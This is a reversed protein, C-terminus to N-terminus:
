LRELKELYTIIRKLLTEIIGAALESNSDKHFDLLDASQSVLRLSQYIIANVLYYDMENVAIEIQYLESSVKLYADIFTKDISDAAFAYLDLIQPGIFAHNWDIFYFISQNEPQWIINSIQMDGHVLGHFPYECIARCIPEKYREISNVLYNDPDFAKMNNKTYDRKLFTIGKTITEAIDEEHLVKFCSYQNNQKLWDASLLYHVAALKSAITKLIENAYYHHEQLAGSRVKLSNILYWLSKSNEVYKTFVLFVDGRNDLPYSAYIEPIISGARLSVLKSALLENERAAKMFFSFSIENGSKDLFTGSLKFTSKTNKSFLGFPNEVPELKLDNIKDLETFHTKLFARGIDLIIPELKM